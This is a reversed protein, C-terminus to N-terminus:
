FPLDEEGLILDALDPDKPGGERLERQAKSELMQFHQCVVEVATRIEGDKEYRRTRMEGEVSVLSGKGAFDTLLEAQRGWLIIPIFDAERDGRKDKYRRNVALTARVYVIM